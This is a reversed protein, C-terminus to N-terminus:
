SFPITLLTMLPCVSPLLRCSLYTIFCYPYQISITQCSFSSIFLILLYLAMLIITKVLLFIQTKFVFFLYGISFSLNFICTLLSQSSVLTRSSVCSFLLSFGWPYVVIDFQMNYQYPLSMIYKKFILCPFELFFASYINLLAIM